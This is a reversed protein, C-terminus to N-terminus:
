RKGDRSLSYQISPPGELLRYCVPFGMHYHSNDKERVFQESAQLTTQANPKLYVYLRFERDGRPGPEEGAIDDIVEMLDLATGLSQGDKSKLKTNLLAHTVSDFTTRVSLRSADYAKEADLNQKTTNNFRSVWDAILRQQPPQLIKFTGGFSRPETPAQQGSPKQVAFVFLPQVAFLLWFLNKCRLLITKRKLALSGNM